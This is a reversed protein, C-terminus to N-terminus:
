LGRQFITQFAEAYKLGSQGGRYAALGKLIEISRPHPFERVVHRYCSLARIKHEISQEIGVFLNPEFTPSQVPFSWDTSSLIEMCHVSDVM